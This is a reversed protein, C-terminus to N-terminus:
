GRPWLDGKARVRKRSAGGAAHQVHGDLVAGVWDCDLEDVRDKGVMPRNDLDDQNVLITHCMSM